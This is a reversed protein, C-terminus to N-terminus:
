ITKGEKRFERKIGEKLSDLSITLKNTNNNAAELACYRLVNIIAGGALEYDQAIKELAIDEALEFKLFVNKWLKLRQSPKPMPFYIINQFRRSFAPDMNGKLNSALVVVGAFDEIRQLLYAVEQNAYRDKADSTASRKGFLADAEDFFLIWNKNEAQDFIKALNKETEGIYKSVIKSLDVRYVNLGVTKGILAATLTKGTGPPGYFLCRYGPKLHKELGWDSMIKKQFKIWTIVEQIDQFTERGLILDEWDLKTKVKQAPFDSTYRPEYETEFTLYHLYEKSVNLVGSLFPELPNSTELQLINFKQFFHNEDFIKLINFKMGINNGGLIFAATEGTPIFGGFNVGKVGGFETFGRNYRKNKVFFADLIQPCIHPTLSLLLIIREIKNMSYHRIVKAYVCTNSSLDPAPLNFISKFETENGFYLNMRTQIVQNLWAMEEEITKTTRNDM